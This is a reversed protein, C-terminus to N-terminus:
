GTIYDILQGFGVWISIGFHICWGIFIIALIVIISSVCMALEHLARINRKIVQQASELGTSSEPNTEHPHGLFAFAMRGIAVWICVGASLEFIDTSPNGWVYLVGISVMVTVLATTMIERAVSEFRASCLILKAISKVKNLNLM